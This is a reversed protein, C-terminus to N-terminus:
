KYIYGRSAELCMRCPIAGTPYSKGREFSSISRYDVNLRSASIKHLAAQIHSSEATLMSLGYNTRSRVFLEHAVYFIHAWARMFAISKFGTGDDHSQHQFEQDICTPPQRDTSTLGGPANAPAVKRRVPICILTSLPYRPRAHSILYPSTRQM